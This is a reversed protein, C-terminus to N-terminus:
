QQTEEGKPEVPEPPEPATFSVEELEGYRAIGVGAAAAVTQPKAQYAVQGLLHMGVLNGWFQTFFIGIVCAIFGLGAVLGAVVSLLLAIVYNGLNDKIFTLIAGFRFFAGFEGSQVYKVVAAPLTVGMLLGWLGSLCSLAAVCIGAVAEADSSNAAVASVIASAGSVLLIPIAYILAALATMLGKVFDGGWDDWEPLPTSSGESVNKLVRLTYGVVVLGTFINVLPIISALLLLGGIALKQVWKEDDFMFTFAKGIEM